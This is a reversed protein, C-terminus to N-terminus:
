AHLSVKLDHVKSSMKKNVDEMELFIKQTVEFTYKLKKLYSLKLPYTLGMLIACAHAGDSIGFLDETGKIAIGTQKDLGGDM